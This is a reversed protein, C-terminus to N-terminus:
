EINKIQERIQDVCVKMELGLKIIKIFDSKSILTNVERYIEQMLFDLYRSVSSKEFLVKEIECLHIKIRDIEENIDLRMVMFAVEQAIRLQNESNISFKKLDLLIKKHKKELLFSANDKILDINKKLIKVRSIICERLANGEIKKVELLKIVTIQFLKLIRRILVRDFEIDIQVVNPWTLIKSLTLDNKINESISISNTVNIIKKVLTIDIYIQQQKYFFNKIKLLCEIKGRNIKKKLINKLSYELFKFKDFLFFSVDFHRYNLSKIEWYIIYDKFIRQSKAFATM